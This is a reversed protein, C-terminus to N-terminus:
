HNGRKKIILKRILLLTSIGTLSGLSDILVDKVEGSRGDIFLQHTEDSIAYFISIILAFLLAKIKSDYKYKLLANLCLAGLIFYAIFHAGKRLILHLFEGDGNIPLIVSSVKIIYTLFTTSLESSEAGPQHSLYFIVGMWLVVASWSIIQYTKKTNNM